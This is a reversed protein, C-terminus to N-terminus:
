ANSLENTEDKVLSQQCALEFVDRPYRTLRLRDANPHQTVELVSGIVVGSLGGKIEEYSIQKEVELGISTLIRGLRDPDIPQPLYDSLWNYSITM